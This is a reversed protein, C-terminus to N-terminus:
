KANFIIIQCYESLKKLYELAKKRRVSDLAWFPDDMIIPVGAGDSILECVAHRVAFYIAEATGKSFYGVDKLEGDAKVRINFDRDLYVSDYKGDTFAM